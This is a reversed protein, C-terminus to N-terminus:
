ANVIYTARQQMVRHLHYPKLTNDEAVFGM